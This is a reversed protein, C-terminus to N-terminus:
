AADRESLWSIRQILEAALEAPAKSDADMVILGDRREGAIRHAQRLSRAIQDDRGAGVERRDLRDILTEDSSVLRVITIEAEPIAQLIWRRDFEPHLMVGSMILRTHGLARYTSWLARLNIASIDTAGPLLSQLADPKPKPFMRDLEDSEIMAHSIRAAELQAGLEWCLTSKGVGAAGTILLIKTTM